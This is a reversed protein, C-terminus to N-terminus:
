TKGGGREMHALVEEESAGCGLEASLRAWMDAVKLGMCGVEAVQWGLNTMERGIATVTATKGTGPPGSVYMGVDGYERCMLYRRLAAKEKSRGVITQDVTTAGDTARSTASLRLFSKLWKYPNTKPGTAAASPETETETSDFSACSSASSHSQMRVLSMKSVTVDVDRESESSPTRSVSTPTPPLPRRTARRKSPTVDVDMSADDTHVSEMPDSSANSDLSPTSISLM